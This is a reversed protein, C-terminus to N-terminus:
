DPLEYAEILGIGTGNGVGALQVTYAGPPLSIVLAADLSGTNLAFAGVRQSAATVGVADAQSSWNDNSGVPVGSGNVVTILPNGLVGAVGFQSLGPGIGRVLIRKPTPGLVVFGAIMIEAGSGVQGRSSVNILRRGTADADSNYDTDYVELLAVGNASNGNASIQGTYSGPLLNVLLAADRSNAPLPFAGILAGKEVIENARLNDGWNDNREIADAARYLTLVPDPMSGPVGFTGLTPGVARLLVPKPSDGAIAFGVTLTASGSGAIGRVALNLLRTNQTVGANGETALVLAGIRVTGSAGNYGDVAIQYTTGAVVDFAASSTALGGAADDNSAVLRLNTLATGTYIALTTDFSSGATTISARGSRNPTWTWWVSRTPGNGAHQPESTERTALTNSGELSGGGAALSIRAAFADNAPATNSGGSTVQLRIAGAVGAKGDVAIVYTSGATATVTVRSTRVSSSEDDNAAVTTLANFSTGSYVALLTDIASGTTAIVYSGSATPTWTWWLSSGGSVGAHNPEGTERTAGSNNATLAGAAVTIAARNAFLDNAPGTAPGSGGGSVGLALRVNGSAGGYGDVAIRYTRGSVATFALGSTVGTAIDDNTAITTLANLAEGTYVALITDFNSGTTVVSVTGASSATWTWWLSAGGRNNAHEPEGAEKSAGISSVDFIGGASGIPSPRAFADNAPATSTVVPTLTLAFAGTGGTQADVVIFYTTRAAARFSVANGSGAAQTRATVARLDSLATGTYVALSTTIGSASTTTLNVDAASDSTWAYWVSRAATIGGHAPEGTEATANAHTGSVSGGAAALTARNAFNDNSPRGSGGDGTTIQTLQLAISGVDGGYGDVMIRYTQGSVANFTVQSTVGPGSDDDYAIRTLASLSTGTYVALITDFSSGATTITVSGAGPATWAWWVSAGGGSDPHIPEGAERTAGVNSGSASVSTGSLVGASAFANNAVGQSGGGGSSGGVTLTAARSTISGGASNRVTATYSGVHSSQANSITLTASTAGPIVSTQGSSNNFSWQYTFPGTGGAVVSFTATGGTAVSANAPQTTITPPPVDVSLTVTNSRAEGASNRVVAQYSGAQALTANTRTLTASTAGSIVSGNFYWAYSLGAGSAAVTFSVTEGANVRRSTPQATIVPAASSSGGAASISLEILESSSADVGYVGAVDDGQAIRRALGSILVGAYYYSTGDSVWTPGGSNGPGASVEDIMLYDNYATSFARTFPGTRHMLYKGSNGGPYLGSPYGTILKTTSSSKLQGVGDPWWGAYGGSATNEFAYHVVFDMSFSQSSNQQARAAAAYGTYRYYGRLTQGGSFSPASGSAWARHWHVDTIWPDVASKDFVVHACSFVVKPHRVVAGSGSGFNPITIMGTFTYPAAGYDSSGAPIQNATYTQAFVASVSFLVALTAKLAWPALRSIM